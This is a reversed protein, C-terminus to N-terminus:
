RTNVGSIFITVMMGLRTPTVAEHRRGSYAPPLEMYALVLWFKVLAATTLGRHFPGIHRSRVSKQEAQYRKEREDGQM